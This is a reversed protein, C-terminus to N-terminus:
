LVRLGFPNNTRPPLTPGVNNKEQTQSNVLRNRSCQENKEFHNDLDARYYTREGCWPCVFHGTEPRPVLKM